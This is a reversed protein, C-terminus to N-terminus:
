FDLPRLEAAPEARQWVEEFYALLPAQEGPACTNGRGDHRQALPRLLYGGVDNLAFAAAYALHDDEVPVRLEIVSPLRQALAILRHGSRLVRAPDHLLFRLSAGRGSGAVRRLAAIAEDDDLLAPDLDHTHFAM